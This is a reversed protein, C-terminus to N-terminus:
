AHTDQNAPNSLSASVCRRPDDVGVAQGGPQRLDHWGAGTGQHRPGDSPEDPVHVAVTPPDHLPGKAPGARDVQVGGLHPAADVCHEGRVGVVVEM